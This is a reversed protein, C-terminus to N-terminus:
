EPNGSIGPNLRNYLEVQEAFSLKRNKTGCKVNRCLNCRSESCTQCVNCDKCQNKRLTGNEILSSQM